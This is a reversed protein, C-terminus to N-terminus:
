LEEYKALRCTATSATYTANTGCTAWDATALEGQELSRWPARRRILETQYLSVVTKSVADATTAM